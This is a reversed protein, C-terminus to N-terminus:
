GLFFHMRCSPISVSLEPNSQSPIHVWRSSSEAPFHISDPETTHTKQQYSPISVDPSWSLPVRASFSVGQRGARQTLADLLPSEQGLPEPLRLIWQSSFSFQQGNCQFSKRYGQVKLLTEGFVAVQRLQAILFCLAPEASAGHAFSKGDNSLVRIDQHSKFSKINQENHIKKCENFFFM